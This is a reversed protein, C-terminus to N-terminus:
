SIEGNLWKKLDTATENEDLKELISIMTQWTFPVKQERKCQDFVKMFLRVQDTNEKEFAELTKTEIHLLTGVDYWKTPIKRAVHVMLDATSPAQSYM